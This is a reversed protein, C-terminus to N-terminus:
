VSFLVGKSSTQYERRTFVLKGQLGTVSRNGILVLLSRVGVDGFAVSRSWCFNGDNSPTIMEM